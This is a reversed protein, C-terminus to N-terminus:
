ANKEYNEDGIIKSTSVCAPDGLIKNLGPTTIEICSKLEILLGDSTEKKNLFIEYNKDKIIDTSENVNSLVSELHMKMVNLKGIDVLALIIFILIPLILIFEVLAQGKKNM